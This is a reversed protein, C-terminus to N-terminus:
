SRVENLALAAAAVAETQVTDPDDSTPAATSGAARVKGAAFGAHANAGKDPHGSYLNWIFDHPASECPTM